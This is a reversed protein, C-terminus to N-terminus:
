PKKLALLEALSSRIIFEAQRKLTRGNKDAARKLLTHLKPELKLGLHKTKTEM